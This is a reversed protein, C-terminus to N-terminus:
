NLHINEFKSGVAVWQIKQFRIKVNLHIGVCNSLVISGSPLSAKIARYAQAFVAIRIM